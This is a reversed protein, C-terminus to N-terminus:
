ITIHVGLIEGILAIIGYVATAVILGISTWLAMRKATNIKEPDGLATVFRYGAIIYMIPAIGVIIITYLWNIIRKLVETVSNTNLPNNITVTQGFVSLPILILAFILLSYKIYRKM